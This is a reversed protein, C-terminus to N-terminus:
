RGGPHLRAEPEGMTGAPEEAPACTVRVEPESSGADIILIQHVKGACERPLTIATTNSPNDDSPVDTDAPRCEGGERCVYRPGPDTDPSSLRVHHTCAVSAAAVVGLSLRRARPALRYSRVLTDAM